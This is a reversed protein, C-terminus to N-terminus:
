TSIEEFIKEKGGPNFSDVRYAYSTSEPLLWVCSPRRWQQFFQLILASKSNQNLSSVWLSKIWDIIQSPPVGNMCKKAIM